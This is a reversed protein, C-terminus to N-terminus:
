FSAKNLPPSFHQTLFSLDHSFTKKIQLIPSMLMVVWMLTNELLMAYKNPNKFIYIFIVKVAYHHFYHTSRKLIKNQKSRDTPHCFICQVM